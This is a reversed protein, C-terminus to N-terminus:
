LNMSTIFHKRLCFWFLSLVNNKVVCKWGDNILLFKVCGIVGKVPVWPHMDNCIWTDEGEGEGQINNIKHHFYGFWCSGFTGLSNLNLVVKLVRHQSRNEAHIENM